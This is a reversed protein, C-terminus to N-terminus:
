SEDSLGKGTSAIRSHVFVGDYSEHGGLAKLIEQLIRQCPQRPDSDVQPDNVDRPWVISGIRQIGNDRSGASHRM